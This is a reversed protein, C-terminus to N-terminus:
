KANMEDLAENIRQEPSKAKESAKDILEATLEASAEMIDNETFESKDPNAEKLKGIIGASIMLVMLLVNGKDM